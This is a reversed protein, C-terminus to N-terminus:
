RQLINMAKRLTNRQTNSLDEENLMKEIHKLMMDKSDDENKNTRSYHGKVYHKDQSM